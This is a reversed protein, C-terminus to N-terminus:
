QPGFINSIQNRVIGSHVQFIRFNSQFGPIKEDLLTPGRIYARSLKSIVHHPRPFYQFLSKLFKSFMLYYKLHM